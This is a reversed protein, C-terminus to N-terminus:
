SRRTTRARAFVGQQLLLEEGDHTPWDPSWFTFVQVAAERAEEDTMAALRDWREQELLPGVRRWQEIWQKMQARVEADAPDVPEAPSTARSRSPRDSM